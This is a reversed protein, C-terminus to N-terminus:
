KLNKVDCQLVEVGTKILVELLLLVRLPTNAVKMKPYTSCAFGEDWVSLFPLPLRTVFIIMM